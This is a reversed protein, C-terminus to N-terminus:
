LVRTIESTIATLKGTSGKRIPTFGNVFDYSGYELDYMPGYEKSENIAVVKCVRDGFITQVLSGIKIEKNTDM